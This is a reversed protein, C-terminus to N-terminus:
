QELRIQYRDYAATAVHKTTTYRLLKHRGEAALIARVRLEAGRHKNGVVFAEGPLATWLNPSTLADSSCRAAAEAQLM